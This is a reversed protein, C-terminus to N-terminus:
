NTAGEQLREYRDAFQAKCSSCCFHYLEGEIRTSEGEETVTNGCEVCDPAFEITGPQPNWEDDVLLQVDYERVAEEGIANSLLTEIAQEQLNAKCVIHADATVFVHEVGDFSALSERIDGVHGPKANVTVLLSLGDSLIDHNLDATFRRIVGIEQLREVRDSVTPPSLGVTEAIENYPRRADEVLLRIIERDTDDLQRM